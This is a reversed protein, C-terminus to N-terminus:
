QCKAANVSTSYGVSNSVRVQFPGTSTKFASDATFQLSFAGGFRVTADDGFYDGSASQLNTNRHLAGATVEANILERTTTSGLLTFLVGYDALTYCASTLAPVSAPVRFQQPTVQPVVAVGGAQVGALTVGITTAVTGTSFLPLDVRTNGAPIQFSNVLQGNAFRLKPDPQNANATQSKTEPSLTLVVQGTVALPYPKALVVGVKVDSRSAGVSDGPTAISIAPLPPVGIRISTAAQATAGAADTVKVGISTLGASAPTGTITGVPTAILGEPLKGLFEFRYPATGGEARFSATYPEGIAGAPPANGSVLRLPLPLVQMSCAQSKTTFTGDQLAVNFSYSGVRTLVGSFVGGAFSLGPPLDGNFVWVFPESGGEPRLAARYNDGVTAVPLPCGGIGLAGYQVAVSCALGAQAGKSDTAVLRFPHPGASMPTGSISSAGISLGSPLTGSISWTYPGAGGTATLAASYANGTTAPKLPCATTIRFSSDAVSVSCSQRTVGFRSDAISIDFVGDGAVLPIGSVKGDASISMGLPLQGSVLNFRYPAVGGQTLLSQSYPVGVTAQPLSCGNVLSVTAPNVLITCDREAPLSGATAPASARVVFAYIGPVAPAGSLVGAPSMSLGPPLLNGDSVTWVVGSPGTAAFTANYLQGVTAAPVPCATSISVQPVTVTISGRKSVTVTEGEINATATITFTFTGPTTPKGSFRGNAFTLGAPMTFDPILSWQVTGDVGTALFDYLYSQSLTADPMQPGGTVTLGPSLVGDRAQFVLRGVQSTNLHARVLAKPGSDLFSGSVLSGPLEFSTGADTTGNSWGVTVPTGGFGNVGGSADGTEWVIKEYNFEITFNGPGTDSRDIIVVQFRNLKDDHSAFYGVNIYNAAFAKRGNVTDQGYTVLASKPGRTDVDAFFPAIIERSTKQLGFPTYTALSDDFTLNGNNNVYAANRVKGFFNIAFGLPVLDTSGDDNRDLVNTSFGPNTRISQADLPLGASLAAALSLVIATTKM